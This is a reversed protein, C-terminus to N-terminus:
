LSHSFLDDLFYATLNKRGSLNSKKYIANAQQKVTSENSGRLEAIEKMSLGKIILLAIDAESPSFNWLKFQEQIVGFFDSKIGGIKNRYYDVEDQSRNLEKTMKDVVEIRKIARYFKFLIFGIAGIVLLIEHFWHRFPVGESIDERIDLLTLLSLLVLFSITLYFETKVLKSKM